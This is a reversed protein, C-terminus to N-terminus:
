RLTSSRSHCLSFVPTADMRRTASARLVSGLELWVRDSLCCVWRFERKPCSEWGSCIAVRRSVALDLRRALSPPPTGASGTSATAYLLELFESRRFRRRCHLVGTEITLSNLSPEEVRWSLVCPRLFIRPAICDSSCFSRPPELHTWSRQFRENMPVKRIQGQLEEFSSSASVRM